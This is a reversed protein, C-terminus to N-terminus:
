GNFARTYLEEILNMTATCSELDTEPKRNITFCSLFHMDEITYEPDAVLVPPFSQYYHPKYLALSKDKEDLVVKVYDETVKLIGKDGNIQIFTEPFRYGVDSWSAEFNISFKEASLMAEFVDDVGTYFSRSRASEVSLEGFFWCLMDLLHIGLDLLVGRDLHNFREVPKLVDSSKIYCRVDKVDGLVGEDILLKAHRFPLAYRKQFGVMCLAENADDLLEMFSSLNLTPPKEIFIAKVGADLLRRVIAYHTEAPATVYVADLDESLIRELSRFFRLGKILLSGGLAIIKSKDVVFKVTNPRLLNLIASHLLGMKGFGVVALCLNVDVADLTLGDLLRSKLGDLELGM